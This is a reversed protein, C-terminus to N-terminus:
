QAGAQDWYIKGLEEGHFMKFSNFSFPGNGDSPDIRKEGGKTGKAGKSSGKAISKSKGNGKTSAASIKAYPGSATITGKSNATGKGTATSNFSNKGKGKKGSKTNNSTQNESLFPNNQVTNAMQNKGKSNGKGAFVTKMSTMANTGKESTNGQSDPAIDLNELGLDLEDVMIEDDDDDKTVAAAGAGGKKGNTSNGSSGNLKLLEGADEWLQQGLVDGHFKLFSKHSFPGNSDSPDIRKEVDSKSSKKGKGKNTPKAGGKSNSNNNNQHTGKGGKSAGKGTPFGQKGGKPRNPKNLTKQVQNSVGKKGAGKSTVVM